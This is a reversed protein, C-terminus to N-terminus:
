RPSRVRRKPMTSPWVALLWCCCRLGQAGIREAQRAAVSAPDLLVDPAGIVWNGHDRFSVGSWKTASKFPANAAVVWGPPSHFAEAIAQMSANPRADAAALAALM